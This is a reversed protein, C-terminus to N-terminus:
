PCISSSSNITRKCLFSTSGVVTVLMTICAAVSVVAFNEQLISTPTVWTTRFLQPVSRLAYAIWTLGQFTFLLSSNEAFAAYNTCLDPPQLTIRLEPLTLPHPPPLKCCGGGGGDKAKIGHIFRLLKLPKPWRAVETRPRLSPHGRGWLGGLPGWKMSSYLSAQVKQLNCTWPPVQLSQTHPCEGMAHYQQTIVIPVPTPPYRSAKVPM